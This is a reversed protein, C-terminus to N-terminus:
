SNEHIWDQVDSTDVRYAFDTGRCRANLGFSTVAAIVLDLGSRSNAGLSSTDPLNVCLSSNMFSASFGPPPEPPM